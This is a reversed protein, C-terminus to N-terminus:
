FKNRYVYRRQMKPPLKKNSWENARERYVQRQKDTLSKEVQSRAKNYSAFYSTSGPVDNSLEAALISIEDSKMATVVELYTWKQTDYLTKKPKRKAKGYM